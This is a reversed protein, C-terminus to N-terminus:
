LVRVVRESGCGRWGWLRCERGVRREESRWRGFHFVEAAGRLDTPIAMAGAIVNVLIYWQTGLLMLALSALGMGGGERILVLLVVPFLATAPVSAAIQALPQAFRALRPSSGVAVGAPVAWLAGLLLAANVRLFTLGAGRAIEEIEEGSLKVLELSTRWVAYGM